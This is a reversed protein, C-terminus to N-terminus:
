TRRGCSAPGVKLWIAVAAEARPMGEVGAMRLRHAYKYTRGKGKGGAPVRPDAGQVERRLVSALELLFLEEGRQVRRDADRLMGDIRAMDRRNLTIGIM